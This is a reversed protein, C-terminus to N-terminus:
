WLPYIYITFLITEGIYYSLKLEKVAVWFASSKGLGLGPSAQRVEASTVLCIENKGQAVSGQAVCFDIHAM